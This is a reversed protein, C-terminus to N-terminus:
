AAARKVFALADNLRDFPLMDVSPVGFEKCFITHDIEADKLKSLLLKLQSASIVASGEVAPPPEDAPPPGGEAPPPEGDGADQPVVADPAVFAPPSDFTRGEVEEVTHEGGLEDPFAARLASAECCKELMQIPAKVWRDNVIPEKTKPDKRTGVVEAFYVRAPFEVKTNSEKHWRYVTVEAWEPARVGLHDIMPGHEFRSRGLYQGTRQATSRYEYIGPMIVDRMSGGQGNPGKVWIPVIHCPKKMPDLKRARCYDVAMLISADQAGPFLSNKLTSWQAADLGRRQVAVALSKKQEDSM